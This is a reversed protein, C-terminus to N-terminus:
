AAEERKSTRGSRGGPAAPEPRRTASRFFRRRAGLGPLHGSIRSRFRVGGNPRNRLSRSRSDIRAPVDRPKRSDSATRVVAWDRRRSASRGRAPSCTRVRPTRQYDRDVGCGVRTDDLRGGNRVSTGFGPVRTRSARERIDAEIEPNGLAAPSRTPPAGFSFPARTCTDSTGRCGRARCGGSGIAIRGRDVARADLSADCGGPLRPGSRELQRHSGADGGSRQAKAPRVCPRFRGGKGADRYKGGNRDVDFLLPPPSSARRGRRRDGGGLTRGEVLAFSFICGLALALLAPSASALSELVAGVDVQRSIWFLILLGLMLGFAVRKM